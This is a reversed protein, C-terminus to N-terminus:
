NLRESLNVADSGRRRGTKRENPPNKLVIFAVLTGDWFQLPVPEAGVYPLVGMLRPLLGSESESTPNASSPPRM